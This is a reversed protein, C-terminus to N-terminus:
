KTPKKTLKALQAAHDALQLKLAVIEKALGEPTNDVALKEKNLRINYELETEWLKKGNININVLKNAFEEPVEIAGQKDATYVTGQEDSISTANNTSYLKM